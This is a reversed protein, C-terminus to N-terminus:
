PGEDGVIRRLQAGLGPARQSLDLLIAGYAELRGLRYLAVGLGIRAPDNGPDLVLSAQWHELAAANRHLLGEMSALSRLWEARVEVPTGALGLAKEMLVLADERRGQLWRAQAVQVLATGQEMGQVEIILAELEKAGEVLGRSRLFGAFAQGEEGRPAMAWRGPRLGSFVRRNGPDLAAALGLDAQLQAGSVAGKYLVVLRGDGDFLFSAPLVLPGEDDGLYAGVAELLRLAQQPARGRAAPWHVKELLGKARLQEAAPDSSLALLAVGQEGLTLAAASLAPLEKVCHVCDVSYVHLLTPQPQSIAGKRKTGLVRRRAGEQDLILLSPFPLPASAVVRSSSREHGHDELEAALVISSPPVFRQAKGTGQRLIYRRGVILDPFVEVTGDPWVVMGSVAGGRPMAVLTWPSEQALFGSGARRVFSREQGDAATLTVKAGVGDQMSGMGVIRVGVFNGHPKGRNELCRLRPSGRGVRLVDLDGDLDLDLTVAARGDDLVDLGSIASVDSFLGNGHGVFATDRENGSWSFGQRLHSSLARWGLLYPAVDDRASRPSRSM